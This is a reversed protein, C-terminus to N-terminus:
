AVTSISFQQTGNALLTTVGSGVQIGNIDIGGVYLNRDTAATGGWADNVFSVGIKHAGAGFAGAFSFDQMQGASHLTTVAAPANIQRGDITLTFQADGQWADESLHLTLRDTPTSGTVASGGVSFNATSNAYMNASTGAYTTGDFAASSVYLNRDTAATGGYADNIFAIGLKHGGAGWNGTLSVLQSMGSSHLASVSRAGGVQAGDVSITFQADGQWADESLCLALTDAHTAVNAKVEVILPRDTVSLNVSSVNALQAIPATGLLPDFVQVSQMVAGLNVVVSSVPATIATGTAQNWLNPEAWVILESAGSAKVLEMTHGSAPMNSVTYAIGTGTAAHNGPDALITTLNHLATAAQKPTGDSNFLGFHLERDTNNPDPRQDLLEYLYTAPVGQAAADLVYDLTYRAQVDQNVGEWGTIGPMTFYGGETIVTPKGPSNLVQWAISSAVYNAPTQDGQPYVHANGYDCSKSLDGLQAYEAQGAGGLTTNYVPIASLQGDAKVATYLANQLAVIALTGTLGNFAVPWINAENAGEIAALTGPLQTAFGKLQSIVWVLDVTGQPAVFDFTIGHAALAVYPALTAGDLAPLNDRVKTFGLYAVDNLVNQQNDYAAIGFHLHTNVGLSNLFKASTNVTVSQASM